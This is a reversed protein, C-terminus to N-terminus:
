YSIVVFNIVLFVSNASAKSANLQANRSDNKKDTTLIGAKSGINSNANRSDPTKQQVIATL